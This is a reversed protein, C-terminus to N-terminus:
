LPVGLQTARPPLILHPAVGAESALGSKAPERALRITNVGAALVFAAAITAVVLGRHLAQRSALTINALFLGPLIALAGIVLRLCWIPRARLCMSSGSWRSSQLTAYAPM